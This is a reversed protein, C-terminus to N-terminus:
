HDSHPVVLSILRQGSGTVVDVKRLDAAPITTHANIDASGRETAIWSATTDTRGDRGQVVLWCVGGPYAGHMSLHLATVSQKPVVTLTATVRTIPDAAQVTAAVNPSPPRSSLALGGGIGLAVVCAAAILATRYRVRGHKPATPGPTPPRNPRGAEASGRRGVSESEASGGLAQEVDDLTLLALRSVTGSLVDVEASCHPCTALHARVAEVEDPELAALVYAGLYEDM